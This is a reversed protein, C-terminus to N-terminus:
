YKFYDYFWQYSAIVSASLNRGLIEDWDPKLPQVKKRIIHDGFPGYVRDDEHTIQEVNDFDHDYYPLGLYEYVREMEAKPNETFDEFKIFLIHEDNGVDIIEKLRELALGVPPSNSWRVLRKEITTGEGKGWDVVGNDAEANKRHKKEMSSFVGRLDRVMCIMKPDESYSKVFDYYYGWGRCKDVVRPKDTLAGYWGQLSGQCFGKWAKKMEEADQARFEEATSYQKRAGFLLEAVGSTPSVYFEPNQGIVNQLLTSGSRPISSQYYIEIRSNKPM